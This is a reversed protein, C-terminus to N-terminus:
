VRATTSAAIASPTAAVMLELRRRLCRGVGVSGVRKPFVRPSNNSVLITNKKISGIMRILLIVAKERKECLFLEWMRKLM